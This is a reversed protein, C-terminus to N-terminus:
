DGSRHTVLKLVIETEGLGLTVSGPEIRCITFGEISDGEYLIKGNIMCYKKMAGGAPQMISLLELSKVREMLQRRRLTEDDVGLQKSVLDSLM